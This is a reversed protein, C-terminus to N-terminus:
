AAKKAAAREAKRRRARERDRERREDRKAKEEAGDQWPLAPQEDSCRLMLLAIMNDTNRFGYGMRVTVKIKNNISEVRGNGVGLDVAAVIDARRRRVKKEVAVVQEIRCYAADHLWADLLRGAEEASGAAFVARLDEKLEWARFLRSGARRKLADLKARQADTLDEPNKVLAYRSGKIEDAAEKLARAEPPAGEGKRPRGPGAKKKPAAAQAAKKAVQWESRRVDDLADNMWQVVHFPDMVWRANPCRRRVLARIWRAGDATVVEIARRQERTLEDLFLNLVDKGVGEHAWVLCGRDHDVVVTIYKHGKKYSTEDIGIRRLGEFRGRGRAAQLDGHVRRCIGGVTHWEVRALEAVASSTCRVALCAVWDEFQRTFRSGPRAWPVSEVRVGHEPCEVRRPRYELYCRSRALDMARWLRPGPPADYCACRRGCEPCRLAHRAHPRVSVVVRDAEIRVGEAVTHVLSLAFRLIRNLRPGESPSFEVSM